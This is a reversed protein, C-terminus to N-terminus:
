FRWNQERLFGLVGMCHIGFHECANPIGPKENRPKMKESTVLSLRDIKAMAVLYPDAQERQLNEDILGPFERLVMKVEDLLGKTKRVFISKHKRAWIHIDDDKYSLEELVVNPARILENEVMDELGSWLSPFVDSPYDQSLTILASTDICYIPM